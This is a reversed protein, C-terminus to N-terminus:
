IGRLFRWFGQRGGDARYSLWALWVLGLGGATLVTGIAALWYFATWAAEVMTM